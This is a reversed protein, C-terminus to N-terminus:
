ETGLAPQRWGLLRGTLHPCHQRRLTSLPHTGVPSKPCRQCTTTLASGRAPLACVQGKDKQFVCVKLLKSCLLPTLSKDPRSHSSHKGAQLKHKWFEANKKNKDQACFSGAMAHSAELVTSMILLSTEVEVNHVCLGSPKM